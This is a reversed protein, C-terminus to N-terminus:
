RYLAKLRGWTSARAETTCLPNAGFNPRSKSWHSAGHETHLGCFSLSYGAGGNPLDTVDVVDGTPWLGASVATTRNPQAGQGATGWEVYDVIQNADTLSAGATSGTGGSTTNPVYLAFSGAAGLDPVGPLYLNTADNTGSANLHLTLSSGAGLFINTGLTTATSNPTVRFLDLFSLDNGLNSIQVRDAGSAAGFEVETIRFDAVSATGSPNINVTGTMGFGFHPVCYYPIPTVGTVKWFFAGTSQTSTGSRFIGTGALSGDNGSTVTHSGGAWLWIVQDGPNVTVTSPVFTTSAGGVTVVAQGAHAPAFCLLILLAAAASRCLFNRRM